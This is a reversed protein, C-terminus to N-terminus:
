VLYEYLYFNMWGINAAFWYKVGRKKFDMSEYLRQAPINPEIADLRVAKKGQNESYEIIEEM